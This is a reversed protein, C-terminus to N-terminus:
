DPRRLYWVAAGVAGLLLVGLAVGLAVTQGATLFSQDGAGDDTLTSTLPPKGAPPEGAGLFEPMHLPNAMTRSPLCSNTALTPADRGGRPKIEYAYFLIPEHSHFSIGCSAGDGGAVIQVPTKVHGKFVRDVDVTYTVRGGIPIANGSWRQHARERSQITGLFVADIGSFVDEESVMACSCAQAATGPLVLSASVVALLMVVRVARRM